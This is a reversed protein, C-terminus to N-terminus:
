EPTFSKPLSSEASTSAKTSSGPMEAYATLWQDKSYIVANSELFQTLKNNLDELSMESAAQLSYHDSHEHVFVLDDPLPTDAPLSYVVVDKGKFNRVLNRQFISIPRMSAGNPAEYTSPDLAKPKVMGAETFLDFSNSRRVSWERLRINRGSNVRFLEKPLSKFCKIIVPSSM